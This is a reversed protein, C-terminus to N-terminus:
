AELQVLQKVLEEDILKQADDVEETKVEVVEVTEEKHLAV